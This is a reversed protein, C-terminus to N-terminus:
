ARVGVFSRQLPDIFDKMMNHGRHHEFRGLIIEKFHRVCHQAAKPGPHGDDRSWSENVKSFHNRTHRAVNVALLITRFLQVVQFRKSIVQIIRSLQLLLEPILRFEFGERIQVPPISKCYIQDAVHTVQAVDAHEPTEEKVPLDSLSSEKNGPEREQGEMSETETVRVHSDQLGM